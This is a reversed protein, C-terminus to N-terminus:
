PQVERRSWLRRALMPERVQPGIAKCEECRVFFLGRDADFCEALKDGGCFPCPQLPRAGFLSNAEPSGFVLASM